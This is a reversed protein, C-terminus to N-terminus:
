IYYSKAYCLDNNTEVKKGGGQQGWTNKIMHTDGLKVVHSHVANQENQARAEDDARRQEQKRRLKAFFVVSVAILVVLPIAISLTSIVIVHEANFGTDPEVIVAAHRSTNGPNAGDEQCTPGHWGPSCECKFSNILDTCVGANACPNSACEDIDNSCDKGSFGSKCRCIFDNILDECQGGNACPKALCYAVKVDCHPGVFGPICQCKYENVLDVCSGGNLCPNVAPCDNINEGCQKGQFGGPCSCSYGTDTM